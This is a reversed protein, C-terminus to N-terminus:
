EGDILTVYFQSENRYYKVLNDGILTPLVEISNKVSEGNYYTTITYNGPGLNINMKATGNENTTRTYNMGNIEFIVTENAAGVNAEFQSDNKYIKVLDETYISLAEAYVKLSITQNLETLDSWKGDINILSVNEEYHQRSGSLLPVMTKKMVATFNDGQSVAIKSSLQVTHYGKFPATGNEDYTLKNNVYIELTYNENENFYTGVASILGQDIAQYTNKYSIICENYTFLNLIGSLDTQYNVNYKETNEVLYGIGFTINLFSPDYYSLYFYGNEGWGTGWSNKCIWAGDGPPTILFNEKPYNDDWGVFSIAHNTRNMSNQYYSHTIENYANGYDHYYGTTISGCKLIAEKVADNDTFNKRSNIIIADFIHVDDSSSLVPSLKGLEDYTDDESPLMGLWNIVYELGQERVGGEESGIIGYKSYQLMNNQMNNESFDYEIGTAKLLASELAGINGFTWCAGMDGQNKVSSVWGWDRSDYKSPLNVVSITNNILKLEAGLTNIITAYDTDNLLLTDNELTVNELMYNLFVGHVAEGNDSFTTNEVILQGDYAYIGHKANNMFNCDTINTESNDSYLGGGCSYDGGFLQNEGIITNKIITETNSVFIAGGYCDAANNTFESNIIDLKGNLQVFAGGFESKSNSFTSNVIYVTCDGGSETDLYVAGGNKIAGTDTFSSNTIIALYLEKGGIAGATENAFLNKFTSGKIVFISTAYIAAAYKSTSDLFKSNNVILEFTSYINGGWVANNNIFKCDNIETTNKCYVAGGGNEAYNNSFTMNNLTIIESSHIAGGDKAHGNIITLNSITINEGVIEFIRALNAGDITYGNGYITFNTKDILIGNSLNDTSNDYVYNQTISISGTSANIENQLSTFNGEASVASISIFLVLLVLFIKIEKM